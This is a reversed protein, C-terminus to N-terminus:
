IYTLLAPTKREWQNPAWPRWLRKLVKEKTYQIYIVCEPVNCHKLSTFIKVMKSRTLKEQKREECLVWIWRPGARRRQRLPYFESLFVRKYLYVATSLCEVHDKAVQIAGFYQKIKYLECKVYKKILYCRHTNM